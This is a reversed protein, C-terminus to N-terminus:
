PKAKWEEGEEHGLNLKERIKMMANIFEEYMPDTGHKIHCIRIAENRQCHRDARM